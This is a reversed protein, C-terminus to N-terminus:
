QGDVSAPERESRPLSDVQPFVARAGMRATHCQMEDPFSRHPSRGRSGTSASSIMFNKQAGDLAPSLRLPFRPWCHPLRSRPVPIGTIEPPVGSRGHPLPPRRFPFCTRDHPLRPQRYPFRTRGQPFRSRRIPFDTMQVPLTDASAPFGVMEAPVTDAPCFAM